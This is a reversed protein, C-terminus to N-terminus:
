AALAPGTIAPMLDSANVSSLARRRDKRCEPAIQTLPTEGPSGCLLLWCRWHTMQEM